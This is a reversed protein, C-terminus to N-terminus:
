KLGPVWSMLKSSLEETSPCEEDSCAESSSDESDEETASASLLLSIIAMLTALVIYIIFGQSYGPTGMKHVFFALVPPLAFGGFTGLGGIL